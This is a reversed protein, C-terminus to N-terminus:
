DAYDSVGGNLVAFSAEAEALCPSMVVKAIRQEAKGKRLSVRHTVNHALVAVDTNRRCM